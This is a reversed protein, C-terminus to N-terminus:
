RGGVRHAVRALRRKAVGAVGRVGPAIRVALNGAQTAYPQVLLVGRRGGPVVTRRLLGPGALAHATSDRATGDAFGLRLRIDWVGGDLSGLDLLVTAAWTGGSVEDAPTEREAAPRLEATRRLGTRGSERHILEVDVTAPGADAVRGYLEHLRLTLRAGGARPRLEGDVALPLLRLPRVLLHELTVEPLDAAWVPTGEADQPYPPALRAPRAAVQKLRNLDRPKESALVVRAIVRGPAPAADLDAADFTELYARTAAWWERRYEPGRATLERTYMRLSHEIFKARAARALRKGGPGHADQLIEVSQRHAEMRAQWNAIGSRDLSISLKAATRRVHWVYVTDPVLAIRPAAALMRATFVFDEYIFRGEPFRIGHERLFDTRYLKNVCLTDHVLRPRLDPSGVLREKRYLEPQWPVERGSPLERRVCLGSAVQVGHRDAAALLADVAGSPLVDDSDLFMVYASTAADIGDNRPAGCGGSNTARRIVRVRRDEAALAALVEASHDTSCDDVAIVEHVAPGQALASRVADAVHAADNYGIVVISVGTGNDPAPSPQQPLTRDM